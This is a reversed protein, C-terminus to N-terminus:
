GENQFVFRSYASPFFKFTLDVEAIKLNDTSNTSEPGQGLAGSFGIQLEAKTGLSFSSLCKTSALFNRPGFAEPEELKWGCVDLGLYFPLPFLYSLTAGTGNLEGIFNEIV